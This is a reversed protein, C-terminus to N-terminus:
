TCVKGLLENGQDKWRLGAELQQAFPLSRVRALEEDSVATNQFFPPAAEWAQRGPRQKIAQTKLQAAAQLLESLM